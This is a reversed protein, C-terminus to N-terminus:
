DGKEKDRGTGADDDTPREYENTEENWVYDADNTATVWARAINDPSSSEPNNWLENGDPNESNWKMPVGHTDKPSKGRPKKYGTIKGESDKIPVYEKVGEFQQGFSETEKGTGTDTGTGTGTGTDKKDKAELKKLREYLSAYNPQTPFRTTTGVMTPASQPAFWRTNSNYGISPTSLGTNQSFPNAHNFQPISSTNKYTGGLSSLIGTPTKGTGMKNGTGIQIKNNSGAKVDITEKKIVEEKKSYQKKAYKTLAKVCKKTKPKKCDKSKLVKLMKIYIIRIYRKVPNKRCM